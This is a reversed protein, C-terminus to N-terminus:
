KNRGGMITYGDMSRKTESAQINRDRQTISLPITDIRSPISFDDRHVQNVVRNIGGSSRNPNNRSNLVQDIYCQQM